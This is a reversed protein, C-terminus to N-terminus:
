RAFKVKLTATKGGEIGEDQLSNMLDNSLERLIQALKAQDRSPQFTREVSTSKQHHSESFKFSYCFLM